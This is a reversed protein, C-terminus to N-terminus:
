LYAGSALGVAAPLRLVHGDRVDLFSERYTAGVGWGGAPPEEPVGAHGGREGEGPPDKDRLMRFDAGAHSVDTRWLGRGLSQPSLFSPLSLPLSPRILSQLGEGREKGEGVSDPHYFLNFDCRCPFWQDAMARQGTDLYSVPSLSPPLSPPLSLLPTFHPFSNRNEGGGEKGGERGARGGCRM